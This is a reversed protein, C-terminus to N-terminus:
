SNGSPFEMVKKQKINTWGLLVTGGGPTGSRHVWKTAIKIGEYRFKDCMTM